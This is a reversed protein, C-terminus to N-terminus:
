YEYKQNEGNGRNEGTSNPTKVEAKMRSGEDKNQFSPRRCVDEAPMLGQVGAVLGGLGFGTEVGIRVTCAFVAARFGRGVARKRQPHWLLNVCPMRGAACFGSHPVRRRGM